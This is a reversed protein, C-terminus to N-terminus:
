RSRSDSPPPAAPRPLVGAHRRIMTRCRCRSAEGGSRRPRAPARARGDHRASDPAPSSTIITSSNVPRVIGPRRQDVAQMLRHLRLFPDVNPLLVLGKGRDGELVEETEVPLECSSLCRPGGLRGLEASRRARLPPSGVWRGMIRSSRASRTYRPFSSFSRAMTSSIAFAPLEALRDEDAGRGDLCRLIEGLPQPALIDVMLDEVRLVVLVLRVDDRLGSLRSRHGDGGVHGAAARVDDETSAPPHFEPLVGAVFHTRLPLRAVVRHDRGPPSCMTPVSRWSDRRM